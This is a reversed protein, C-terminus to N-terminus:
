VRVGAARAWDYLAEDNAVWERRMAATIRPRPHDHAMGSRHCFCGASAPVHALARGIVDDIAERNERIFDAM